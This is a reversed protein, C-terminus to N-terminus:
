WGEDCTEWNAENSGAPKEKSQVYDCLSDILYKAIEVTLHADVCADGQDYLILSNSDNDIIAKRTQLAVIM